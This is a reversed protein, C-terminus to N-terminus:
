QADFVSSNVAESCMSKLIRTASLLKNIHREEKIGAKQLHTLSLSPLTSLTTIGAEALPRAYMPLGVSVLWDTVSSIHRPSVPKRCIETLGGSLIAMRHLKMLHKARILDMTAAVDKEPQGLDESYRETLAEPIGYRGHKDSYPEETLDIKESLLKNEILVQLDKGKSCSIKKAYVPLLKVAHQTNSPTEPIKPLCSPRPSTPTTSEGVPYSLKPYDDQSLPGMKTNSLFSEETNTESDITPLHFLGNVFRGKCKKVPVPPPQSSKKAQVKTSCLPISIRVSSDSKTLHQLILNIKEQSKVGSNSPTADVLEDKFNKVPQVRCSIWRHVDGEKDIAFNCIEKGKDPSFLKNQTADQTAGPLNQLSYSRLCLKVFQARDIECSSCLLPLSRGKKKSGIINASKACSALSHLKNINRNESLKVAERSLLENVTSSNIKTSRNCDLSSSSEAYTPSPRLTKGNKLNESSEFCGSDRHSCGSTSEVETHMKEQSGSHDSNSDYEQLLEIATLLVAKHEPNQINLEDLDEEELLKFADLDEYGNFLFTPMHEKLNIRELLDEVSKPKLLGKGRSRSRKTKKEAENLVDVYIFKFTGVKNNLLGMWTGMPPKSIIDIIDGKKLKLSDSDYPSPTFDTHVRARGCFPGRYAPEDDDGDESKVSERNSASSDTTSVTQGSMSSQGSLSSRLSEVSGGEKLQPKELSSIHPQPIEPSALIDDTSSDQESIYSSYKKSMKKKMTEKVSKVKKSLSIRPTSPSKVVENYIVDVDKELQEDYNGAHLRRNTLDFGGFSSTRGHNLSVFSKKMEKETVSHSVKQVKEDEPCSFFTGIKKPTKILGGSESKSLTKVLKRNVNITGEETRILKKKVRRTSNVLKQLRKFKVTDELEDESQEVSYCNSSKDCAPYLAKAWDVSYETDPMRKQFEYEKLRALAEEITIMKEKVMLMLQIREEDSMTIQSAIYDVCEGKSTQRMIEKPSKHFNQWFHKNKKKWYIRGISGDESNESDSKHLSLKGETELTPLMSSFELSEVNLDQSIHQKHLREMRECVNTTCTNYYDAYQETLDDINELSGDLMGMVDTWLKSLADPINMESQPELSAAQEEEM